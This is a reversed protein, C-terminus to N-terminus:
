WFLRFAGRKALDFMEQDFPGDWDECVISPGLKIHVMEHLMTMGVKKQFIRPKMLEHVQFRMPKYTGDPQRNWLVRAIHTSPIKAWEFKLDKPLKDGFFELNLENYLTRLWKNSGARCRKRTTM